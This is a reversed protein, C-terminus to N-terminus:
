SMIYENSVRFQQPILFAYLYYFSHQGMPRLFYIKFIGLSYHNKSKIYLPIGSPIFQINFTKYKPLILNRVLYPTLGDVNCLFIMFFKVRDTQKNKKKKLPRFVNKINKDIDNKRKKEKTFVKAAVYAFIGTIVLSVVLIVSYYEPKFFESFSKPLM